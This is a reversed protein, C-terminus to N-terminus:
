GNWLRVKNKNVIETAAKNLPIFWLDGYIITTTPTWKLKCVSQFDQTVRFKAKDM